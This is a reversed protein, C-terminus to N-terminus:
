TANLTPWDIMASFPDWSRALTIAKKISGIHTLGNILNAGILREDEFVLLNFGSDSEPEGTISVQINEGQRHVDGIQAYTWDFFPSVHQPVLGPHSATKGAMNIGATRGQYCANGWTGLWAQQGTQRNLGQCVDGAAYLTDMNTRMQDNVLVAQDVAVRSKDLFQINPRIGTCVAVFDAQEMVEDPFFCCVGEDDQEMSEMSCGIRIEIGRRQFYAALRAATEPHAGRPLLQSAVDLLIVRAGRRHLIEALKVGVFSAGLVVVKKATQMAKEIALTSDASRLVFASSADQLGPVPPIVPSAGTAILCKDYALTNGNKMQVSQNLADLHEVGSGFHCTVDYRRYFDPGFPFCQKWSLKGKLYYPALMPNFAPGDTDSVLHIEGGFGASRAGMVAHAAAGGNGLIAIQQSTTRKM